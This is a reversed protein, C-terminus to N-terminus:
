HSIYSNLNDNKMNDRCFTIYIFIKIKIKNVDFVTLVAHSSSHPRWGLGYELRIKFVSFLTKKEFKTSLINAGIYNFYIKLPLNAIFEQRSGEHEEHIFTVKQRSIHFVIMQIVINGM